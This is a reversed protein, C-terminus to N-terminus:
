FVNELAVGQKLLIKYGNNNCDNVIIIVGAMIDVKNGIADNKEQIWEQRELNKKCSKRQTKFEKM